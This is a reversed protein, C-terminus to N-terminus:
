NLLFLYAWMLTPTHAKSYAMHITRFSKMKVEWLKQLNYRQSDVPNMCPGIEMRMYLLTPFHINPASTQSHYCMIQVVSVTSQNISPYCTSVLTSCKTNKLHIWMEVRQSGHSIYVDNTSTTWAERKSFINIAYIPL